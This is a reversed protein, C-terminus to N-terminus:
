SVPLLLFYKPIRSPGAAMWLSRTLIFIYASLFRMFNLLPFNLNKGQPPILGVLRPNVLSSLLEAPISRLATTSVWSVM